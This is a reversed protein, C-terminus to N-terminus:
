SYGNTAGKLALIVFVRRYTLYIFAYKTRPNNDLHKTPQATMAPSTGAMWAKSQRVLLFAHIGPVYALSAVGDQPRSHGPM